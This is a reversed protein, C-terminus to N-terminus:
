SRVPVGGARRAHRRARLWTQTSAIAAGGVVALIIWLGGQAFLSAHVLRLLVAVGVGVALAGFPLENWVLRQRGAAIAAFPLMSTAALYDAYATGRARLHRADQHRAGALALLALGGMLVAGALRPALLVHAIGVIATGVFFPHRTVREIGYPARIPQGFLAVPMRPYAMLGAAILAVGGAIAVLLLERLLPVAIAAAGFGAAGAHRHAAYYVVVASFTVAAILSYAAVFGHEGLRPGFRRKVADSALGVHTAIFLLALLTVGLAPEM